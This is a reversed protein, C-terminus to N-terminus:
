TFMKQKELNLGVARRIWEMVHERADKNKLLKAMVDQVSKHMNHLQEAVTDVMRNLGSLSQKM